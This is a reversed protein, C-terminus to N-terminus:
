PSTASVDALQKQAAARWASGTGVLGDKQVEGHPSLTDGRVKENRMFPWLRFAEDWSAVAAAFHERAAEMNEPTDQLILQGVVLETMAKEKAQLALWCDRYVGFVRLDRAVHADSAKDDPALRKSLDEADRLALWYDHASINPWTADMRLFAEHFKQATGNGANAAAPRSSPGLLLPAALALM